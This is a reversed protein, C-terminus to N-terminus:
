FCTLYEQFRRLENVSISGEDFDADQSHTPPTDFITEQLCQHSKPLSEDNDSLLMKHMTLENHRSNCVICVQERLSDMSMKKNFESLCNEKVKQFFSTPWPAKQPNSRKEMTRRRRRESDSRLRVTREDITENNRRTRNIM